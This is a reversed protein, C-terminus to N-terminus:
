FLFTSPDSRDQMRPAGIHLGFLSVPKQQTYFVNIMIPNFTSGVSKSFAGGRRRVCRHKGVDGCPYRWLSEALDQM